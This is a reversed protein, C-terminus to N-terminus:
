YPDATKGGGGLFFTLFVADIKAKIPMNTTIYKLNSNATEADASTQYKYNAYGGSHTWALV